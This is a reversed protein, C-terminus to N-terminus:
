LVSGVMGKMNKACVGDEGRVLFDVEFIVGSIRLCISITPDRM